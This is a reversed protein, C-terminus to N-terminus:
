VHMAGIPFGSVSDTYRRVTQILPGLTKVCEREAAAEEALRGNLRYSKASGSSEGPRLEAFWPRLGGALRRRRSLFL